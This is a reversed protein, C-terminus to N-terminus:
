EFWPYGCMESPYYHCFLPDLLRDVDEEAPTPTLKWGAIRWLPHEVKFFDNFVLMQYDLTSFNIPMGAFEAVAMSYLIGHPDIGQETIGETFITPLIDLKDVIIIVDIDPFAEISLRDIYASYKNDPRPDRSMQVINELPITVAGMEFDDRLTHMDTFDSEQYFLGMTEVTYIEGLIDGQELEYEHAPCGLRCFELYLATKGELDLFEPVITIEEMIEAHKKYAIESTIPVYFGVVLFMLFTVLLSKFMGKFLFFIAPIVIFLYPLILKLLEVVAFELGM